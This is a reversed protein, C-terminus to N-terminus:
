QVSDSGGMVDPGPSVVALDNIITNVGQVGRAVEEARERERESSVTGRLYVLGNPRAEVDFLTVAKLMQDQSLQNRVQTALAEDQQAGHGRTEGPTGLNIENVVETVGRQKRALQEALERENESPVIGRLYVVGGPEVNVNIRPLAKLTPDAGLATEVRAEIAGESTNQERESARAARAAEIRGRAQQSVTRATRAAQRSATRAAQGGRQAAVTRAQKGTTPSGLVGAAAGVGLGALAGVGLLLLKNTGGGNSKAAAAAAQDLQQAAEPNTRSLRLIGSFRGPGATSSSSAAEQAQSAVRGLTSAVKSGQSAAQSAGQTAAQSLTSTVKSGQTAARSLTDSVRSGLSAAGEQASEQTSQSTRRLTRTFRAALSPSSAKDLQKAVEANRQALMQTLREQQASLVQKVQETRSPPVEITQKRLRIEPIKVKITAM